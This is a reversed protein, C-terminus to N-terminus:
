EVYSIDHTSIDQPCLSGPCWCSHYKRHHVPINRDGCALPWDVCTLLSNMFVDIWLHSAITVYVDVHMWIPLRFIDIVPPLKKYLSSIKPEAPPAVLNDWKHWWKQHRFKHGISKVISHCVRSLFVDNRPGSVSLESWITHTLTYTAFFFYKIHM